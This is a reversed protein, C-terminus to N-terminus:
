VISLAEVAPGQRSTGQVTHVEVRTIFCTRRHVVYGYALGWLRGNIFMPVFKIWTECHPAFCSQEAAISFSFHSFDFHGKNIPDIYSVESLRRLLQLIEVFSPPPMFQTDGSAGVISSMKTAIDKIDFGGVERGTSRCLSALTILLLAQFPTSHSVATVLVADFSQRSAKQVDSIKVTLPKATQDTSEQGRQM